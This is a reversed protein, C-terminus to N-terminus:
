DYVEGSEDELVKTIFKLARIMTETKYTDISIPVQWKVAEQVLEGIRQWEEEAGLVPAGPRSSEGGIDLIRLDSLCGIRRPNRGFHTAVQDRIYALRLPNIKHLPAMKGKPDWWEASLKSFKAVEAPDVTPGTAGSSSMSM